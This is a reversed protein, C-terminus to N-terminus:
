RHMAFHMMQSGTMRVTRSSDPVGGAVGKKLKAHFKPIRVDAPFAKYARTAKNLAELKLGKKFFIFLLWALESRLLGDPFLHLVDEPCISVPNIHPIYRPDLAFQLKNLGFDHFALNLDRPSVGARLQNLKRELNPWDRLEHCPQCDAALPLTAGDLLTVGTPKKRLFSFPRHANPVTTNINCRGCFCHASPSETFPLMSQRGLHDASSIIVWVRLRVRRVGGATDPITIWRGKDLEILDKGICPEDHQKGDADVANIVRSMGHTKYVKAKALAALKINETKFREEAPLNM